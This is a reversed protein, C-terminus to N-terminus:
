IIAMTRVRLGKLSLSACRLAVDARTVPDLAGTSVAQHMTETWKRCRKFTSRAIVDEGDKTKLELFNLQASSAMEWRRKDDTSEGGYCGEGLGWHCKLHVDEVEASYWALKLLLDAHFCALKPHRRTIDLADECLAYVINPMNQKTNGKDAGTVVACAMIEPPLQFSSDLYEDVNFGGAEAMAIHAAACGELASAYWLPDPCATKCLDAAKTYREYADLPSGALLSLDAAFKERRAVERKMMEHADKPNLESYDWFEDLPTLLQAKICSGKSVNSLTSQISVAARKNNPVDKKPALKSNPSVVSALNNLSLEAGSGQPSEPEKGDKNNTGGSGGGKMSTTMGFTFRSKTATVAPTSSSATTTSSSTTATTTSSTTTLLPQGDKHMVLDSQRIKGELERFIAVALDNIVVNMHLDMMPISEQDTPPFAVLSSTGLLSTASVQSLNVQNAEHFSDFVFLRQVVFDREFDRGHATVEYPPTSYREAWQQWEQLAKQLTGQDPCDRINLVGILAATRRSPCLDIWDRTLQHNILRDHAMRSNYPRGDFFQLRQCGHGWHFNKLPTNDYKWDGPRTLHSNPVVVCKNGFSSSSTTTTTTTTRTTSSSDQLLQQQQEEQQQYQYRDLADIFELFSKSSFTTPDDHGNRDSSLLPIVAVANVAATRFSPGGPVQSLSMLGGGGAGSGNGSSMATGGGGERGGSRNATSAPM